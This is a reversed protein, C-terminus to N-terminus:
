LELVWIESFKWAKTIRILEHLDEFTPCISALKPHYQQSQPCSLTKPSSPPLAVALMDQIQSPCYFAQSSCFSHGDIHLVSNVKTRFLIQHSTLPWSRSMNVNCIVHDLRPMLTYFGLKVPIAGSRERCWFSCGFWEEKMAGRSSGDVFRLYECDMQERTTSTQM